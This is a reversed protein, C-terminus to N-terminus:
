VPPHEGSGNATEDDNPIQAIDRAMKHVAASIPLLFIGYIGGWLGRLCLNPSTYPALVLIGAIMGLWFGSCAPCKALRDIPSPYREWIFKTVEARAFLYYATTILAIFALFQM